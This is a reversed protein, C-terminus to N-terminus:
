WGAKTWPIWNAASRAATAGGGPYLQPTYGGKVSGAKLLKYTVSGTVAATPGPATQCKCSTYFWYATGGRSDVIRVTDFRSAHAADISWRATLLVHTTSFVAASFSAVGNGTDFTVHAFTRATSSDALAITYIGVPVAVSVLFNVCAQAAQPLVSGGGIVLGGTWYTGAPASGTYLVLGKPNVNASPPLTFCLQQKTGFWLLPATASLGTISLSAEPEALLAQLLPQVANLRAAMAAQRAAEVALIAALLTSPRNATTAASLDAAPCPAALV